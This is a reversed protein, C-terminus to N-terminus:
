TEIRELEAQVRDAHTEAVHCVHQQCVDMEIVGAGSSREHSAMRVSLHEHVLAARWM